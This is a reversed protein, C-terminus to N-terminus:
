FARRNLADNYLYTKAKEILSNDIKEGSLSRLMIDKATQADNVDTIQSTPSVQPDYTATTGTNGSHSKKFERLERLEKALDNKKTLYDYIDKKKIGDVGFFGRATLDEFLEGNSAEATLEPFNNQVMLAIDFLDNQTVPQGASQPEHQEPRTEESAPQTNSMLAKLEALEQSAKSVSLKQKIATDIIKAVSTDDIESVGIGKLYARQDDSLKDLLNQNAAPTEEVAPSTGVEEPQVQAEPKDVSM